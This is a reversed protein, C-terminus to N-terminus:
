YKELERLVLYYKRIVEEVIKSVEDKENEDRPSHRGRAM